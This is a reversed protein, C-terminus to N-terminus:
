WRMSGAFCISLVAPAADYAPLTAGMYDLGSYTRGKAIVDRYDDRLPGVAVLYRARYRRRKSPSLSRTAARAGSVDPDIGSDAIM